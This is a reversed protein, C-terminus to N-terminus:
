SACQKQRNQGRTAVQWTSPWQKDDTPLGLGFASLYRRSFCVYASHM